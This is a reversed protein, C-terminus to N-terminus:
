ASVELFELGSSWHIMLIELLEAPVTTESTKIQFCIATGALYWKKHEQQSGTTVQRRQLCGSWFRIGM